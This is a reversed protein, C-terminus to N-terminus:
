NQWLIKYVKLLELAKQLQYDKELDIIKVEDTKGNSETGVESTQPKPQKPEIKNEVTEKQNNVSKVEATAGVEGTGNMEALMKEMLDGPAKFPIEIDPKIGMKDICVGSPTFYKAITVKMSSGDSLNFINQVSGKGYSKMGLLIARNNDRLAGAVIESGSASGQNILVIMPTKPIVPDEDNLYRESISEMRGKTYVVLKGKELFFDSIKVAESLLGGPNNRLDMIMAVPNQSKLKLLEEKCENATDGNFSSIRFYAYKDEIMTSKVTKLKIEERTLEVEFPDKVEDRQITLRVKTGLPGRIKDAIVDMEIGKTVEGDVKMIRDLPKLGAKFAPTDEFPSVVILQNDRMGIVIGVGGYKGQLQMKMEKSAEKEMFTTYPDLKEMYNSLLDHVMKQSPVADYYYDHLYRVGENLIYLDRMLNDTEKTDKKDSPGAPPIDAAFIMFSGAFLGTLIWLISTKKM